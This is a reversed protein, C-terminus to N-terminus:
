KVMNESLVLDSNLHGLQCNFNQMGLTCKLLYKKTLNLMKSEKEEKSIVWGFLFRFIVNVGKEQVM